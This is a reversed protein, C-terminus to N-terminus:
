WDRVLHELDIELGTMCLYLCACLLSLVDADLFEESLDIVVIWVEVRFAQNM